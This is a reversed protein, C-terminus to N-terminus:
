GFICLPHIKWFSESDAVSQEKVSELLIVGTSKLPLQSLGASLQKPFDLGLLM